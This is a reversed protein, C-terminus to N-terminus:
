ETCSHPGVVYNPCVKLEVDAKYVWIGAKCEQVLRLITCVKRHICEKCM